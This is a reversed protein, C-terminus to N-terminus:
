SVTFTATMRAPGIQTETWGSLGTTRLNFADGAAYSLGNGSLSSFSKKFANGGSGDGSTFSVTTTTSANNKYVTITQQENSTESGKNGFHFDLRTLTCAVPLIMGFDSGSSSKLTNQAGNGYSFQYGNTNGASATSTIYDDSEEGFILIHNSADEWAVGSGTSTLVQGDSGQSGGITLNDMEVTGDFFANKFQKNADGLDIDDDTMPKIWGDGFVVQATGNSTFGLQGSAPRYIGTDTDDIFRLTPAGAGGDSIGLKNNGSVNVTAAADVTGTLTPSTLSKNTLTQTGTLTVDGTGATAFSLAGSGDTQLVQNASGDSTPFTYADNFTIAGGSAIKLREAVSTSGTAQTNLTIAAADNAGDRHFLMGAVSDANNIAVIQSFVADSTKYGEIVVSARGDSTSDVKIVQDGGGAVHLKEGPSTTGIGVSVNEWAWVGDSTFSGRKTGDSADQLYYNGRSLLIDGNQVYADGVVHLPRAPSSTGIGVDGGAEITMRVSGNTKLGLNHNSSTGIIGNSAQAQLNVTAGSTRAIDIDANGGGIGIISLEKDPSSDNIGVNGAPSIRMRETANAYGATTGTKFIMGAEVGDSGVSNSFILANNDTDGGSHSGIASHQTGGDQEFVIYPQDDEGSNDTDAEIILVGDGAGGSIHLNAQPSTTGIGFKGASEDFYFGTTTNTGYLHFDRARTNLNNISNFAGLLMWSSETNTIDMDGLALYAGGSYAALTSAYNDTTDQVRIKPDSADSVHLKTAPADTGVGLTTASFEVPANVSGDAAITLAHTKSGQGNYLKTVGWADHEIFFESDTGKLSKLRISAISANDTDDTNTIKLSVADGAEAKSLHLLESPSSTGLGLNGSSLLTMTTTGGSQFAMTDDAHLILDDDAALTIDTGDANWGIHSNSADASLYLYGAVGTTGVRANGNVDLLHSPSTTGIGLNGASTLSMRVASNGYWRLDDSGNASYMVWPGSSDSALEIAAENDTSEVKIKQAGAGSVHLAHSPSTTGIGVRDASSDVFLTDTDWALDGTGGTLATLTGLATIAAQHQTVNSEAIRADAFTGSTVKSAAINPIHSASLNATINGAASLAVGSSASVAVTGGANPLSITRDATPDVITLTTEHADATAGEFVIANAAEMTVTDVVTQTGSVTLNPVLLTGTSPNYRLAGTDDLLANSEDHFVVPFNTNATSDSVTVNSATGTLDGVFTSATVNGNKHVQLLASAVYESQGGSADYGIMYEDFAGGYRLGAFWEEGSADEDFFRIGQGRTEYGTMNIFTTQAPSSGGDTATINLSASNAATITLPTSVTTEADEVKFRTAGNTKLQIPSSGAATIIDLGSGTSILRTDYDDSASNKLDIYAGSAGSMEHRAWSGSGTVAISLQGSPDYTLTSEATMADTGTATLVRNDAGNAMFDSVDVSFTTSSLDLGTGASYTTNTDTSAITVAGGSETITVNSGATFALTESSGLTNGGATVGRWTNTDTVSNTITVAGGSESITIGTGATFALTESSALTNGGATVPRWTNDNATMDDVVLDITGDGDEYTASIRTETNSSFMAGVIDQVEETSLQTNTNASNLTISDGSTTITMGGAAVLTLTDTASDAAATTQGSVAVNSFANQNAEGAGAAIWTFGGSSSDYSLIYNDTPSNTANLHVEDISADALQASDIADDAMLANTIQDDAILATTIADDAILASTIADDAILATTIADDAIKASTIADDAIRATAFTGSTIKSAALNPIDSAALGDDLINIEALSATIGLNTLANGQQTSTLGQNSVDVRLRNGLSTATTTSFSADDGLAAALENLTNLASPASDVLGAVETDVYAKISQQSAAATASNSSMDDQDLLTLQTNTDTSVFDLKGNTDDYTVAINTETNSSVMAGVIDQVQETTLQTNTDTAALTLTGAADDYTKTINSGAVIVGAVFDEVQEQTLQTNTDTAVFNLKGSTDDYTVAINTETGGDVMAGVIDQVEESSLSANSSAITVAGGSETITVNSGATFALTETAGLTNGGATVTRFSNTDTAVLDITGDGDEYTATINTETNGTFMAGVIDQVQENSLQTNTDTATITVAGTSSDISINSGAVISTVGANTLTVAGSTGGGSLGTGATVATIDGVETTFGQAAIYDYVADGTVLNGNGDAVSGSTAAITSNFSLTGDDNVTITKTANNAGTFEIKPSASEGTNPTILIDKDSDAM